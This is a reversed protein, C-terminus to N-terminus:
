FHFTKGAIQPCSILVSRSCHGQLVCSVAASADGCGRTFARIQAQGHASGDVLFWFYLIM